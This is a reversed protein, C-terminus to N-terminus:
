PHQHHLPAFTTLLTAITRKKTQSATLPPWASIIARLRSALDSAGTAAYMMALHMATQLEATLTPLIEQCRTLWRTAEADNGLATHSMLMLGAHSSEIIPTAPQLHEMRGTFALMAAREKENLSGRTLRSTLAEVALPLHADFLQYPHRNGKGFELIQIYQSAIDGTSILFLNSVPLMVQGGNRSKASVLRGEVGDFMGGVVRVLDGEELQVDGIRYCPLQGSYADAIKRFMTMDRDTITMLSSDGPMAGPKKLLRMQPIARKLSRIGAETDRIFIYSFLMKRTVTKMTGFQNVRMFCTPLFYEIASEGNCARQVSLASFEKRIKAIGQSLLLVYWSKATATMLRIQATIQRNHTRQANRTSHFVQKVPLQM